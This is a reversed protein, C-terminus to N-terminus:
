NTFTPWISLDFQGFCDCMGMLDTLKEDLTLSEIDPAYFPQKKALQYSSHVWKLLNTVNSQLYYNEVIRLEITRNESVTPLAFQLRSHCLHVAYLSGCIRQMYISNLHEEDVLDLPAPTRFGIENFLLWYPASLQVIPYTALQFLHQNRYKDV